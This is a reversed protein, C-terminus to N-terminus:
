GKKKRYARYFGYGFIVGVVLIAGYQLASEITAFQALFIGIAAIGIYGCYLYFGDRVITGLFTSTIFLPLPVKLVGCGISILSSPVMPLARLLTLVFYDKWNGALKGGFSQIDEHTISFFRACKGMIFDEMKDSVVYVVLAGFVKGVAGLLALVILFEVAYGQLHALSGATIMVTPSPIPAIIEEVFSAVTTFVTLPMAYAWALVTAELYAFM